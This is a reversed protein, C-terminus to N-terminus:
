GSINDLKEKRYERVKRYDAITIQEDAKRYEPLM